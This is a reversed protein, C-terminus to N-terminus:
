LIIKFFFRTRIRLNMDVLIQIFVFNDDHDDSYM